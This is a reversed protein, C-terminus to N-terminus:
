FMLKALFRNKVLRQRFVLEMELTCKLKEEIDYCSPTGWSVFFSAENAIGLTVAARLQM